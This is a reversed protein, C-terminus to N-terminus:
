REPVPPDGSDSREVCIVQSQKLLRTMEQVHEPRVPVGFLAALELALYAFITPLKRRRAM